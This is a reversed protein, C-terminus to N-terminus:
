LLQIEWARIIIKDQEFLEELSSRYSQWWATDLDGAMIEYIIIEDKVTNSENEKWFGIAPARTYVTIGGFKETLGKRIKIFVNKDIAEGENNYLPLLIQISHM